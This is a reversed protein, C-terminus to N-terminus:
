IKYLWFLHFSQIPQKGSIKAKSRFFIELSDSLNKTFIPDWTPLLQCYYFTKEGSLINCSIIFMKHMYNSIYFSSILLNAFLNKHTYLNMQYQDMKLIFIYIISHIRYSTIYLRFNFDLHCIDHKLFYM